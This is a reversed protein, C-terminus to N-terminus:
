STKGHRPWLPNTAADIAYKFSASKWEANVPPFLCIYIAAAAKEKASSTEVERTTCAALLALGELGGAPCSIFWFGDVPNGTPFNDWGLATLGCISSNLETM